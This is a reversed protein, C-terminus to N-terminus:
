TPHHPLRLSVREAFHISPHVSFIAGELFIPLPLSHALAINSNLFEFSSRRDAIAFNMAKMRESVPSVILVSTYAKVLM